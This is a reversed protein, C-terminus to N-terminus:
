FDLIDDDDSFNDVDHTHTWSRDPARRHFKFKKHLILESNLEAKHFTEILSVIFTFLQPSKILYFQRYDETILKTPRSYKM